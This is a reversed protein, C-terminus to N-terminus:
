PLNKYYEEFKPRAKIYYPELRKDFQTGMGEMIIRDAEQFTMSEKYVRKSVLADYVDVIAMIRAEFPIEDGKLGDPYGSGDIREHHYHAVNVAINMFPVNDTGELIQKVIRAGQPAHTKMVAFEEPTFRGPKRLIADDVTIKGLDHMPAARVIDFCFEESLGPYGEEKMTEILLRMCDSTRKIHGGTSNDRGEIMTAMGLVLRNQLDLIGQTKEKVEAELQANYNQILKIFEQNKTDDSILLQYGKYFRGVKLQSMHLLYTKEGAELFAKDGEGVKFREILPLVHDKAIPYADVSRDVTYNSIEPIMAKATDNSGLYRMKADFSVFGTDGRQVLSDTVSDSADYLRLRSAIIIYLIMGLNYTGPLLEVENARAAKTVFRGLFFGFFAITVSLVVLGLIKRSVQRKKIFSYILVAITALYYAIILAYFVTHMPGYEKGDIYTVGDLSQSLYPMKAYFLSNHGITLSFCFVVCSAVVLAARMWPRLGVGCINFILFMASLLVFCGGVYSLKLGVLAEQINQSSAITLHAFNVVPILIAMVTISGDFHKHFLYAYVGLTVLSIAFMAYYYYLAMTKAETEPISITYVRSVFLPEWSPAM